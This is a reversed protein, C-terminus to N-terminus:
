HEGMRVSGVEHIIVGGDAIGYPNAWDAQTSTVYIGGAAEVIARYSEQMDRAMKIENDSWEWHFRLVPIGCQDVGNPDIECYCNENPMMEGRGSFGIYVG